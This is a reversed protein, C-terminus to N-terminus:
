IFSPFHYFKSVGAADPAKTGERVTWQRVEDTGTTFFSGLKLMKRMAITIKPLASTTGISKLEAEVEADTEYRTLREELSVSVPIIPDAPLGEV